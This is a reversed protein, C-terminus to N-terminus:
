VKIYCSEGNVLSHDKATNESINAIAMTDVDKFSQSM